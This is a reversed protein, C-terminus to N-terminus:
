DEDAHPFSKKKYKELAVRVSHFIEELWKTVMIGAKLAIWTFSQEDSSRSHVPGPSYPAPEESPSETTSSTEDSSPSEQGDDLESIPQAITAAHATSSPTDHQTEAPEEESLVEAEESEAPPAPEPEFHPDATPQGSTPPVEPEASVEEPETSQPAESKATDSPTEQAPASQSSSSAKSRTPKKSSAAAKRQEYAEIDSLPIWIKRSVREINPFEGRKIMRRVTNEAVGLREMADKVSLKEM